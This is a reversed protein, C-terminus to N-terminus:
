NRGRKLRATGCHGCFRNGGQTPNSHGCRSNTCWWFLTSPPPSPNPTHRTPPNPTHRDPPNTPNHNRNTNHRNPAYTPPTPNRHNSQPTRQRPLTAGSPSSLLGQLLSPMRPRSPQPTRTTTRSNQFTHRPYTGTSHTPNNHPPNIQRNAVLTPRTTPNHYTQSETTATHIPPLNQRTPRTRPTNNQHSTVQTPKPTPHHHTQSTSTTPTANPLNACIFRTQSSNTQRTAVLTQRPIPHTQSVTTSTPMRPLNPRSPRTSLPGLILCHCNRAFIQGIQFFSCKEQEFVSLTLANKCLDIM